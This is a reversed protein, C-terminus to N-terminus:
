RVTGRQMLSRLTHGTKFESNLANQQNKSQQLTNNFFALDKAARDRITLLGGLNNRGEDTIEGNADRPLAAIAADMESIKATSSAAANQQNLLDTAIPANREKFRAETSQLAPMYQASMAMEAPTKGVEAENMAPGLDRGALKALAQKQAFEQQTAVNSANYGTGASLMSSLDTDFLETDATLGPSMRSLQDIDEQTINGTKLRNQLLALKGASLSEADTARKTLAGQLANGQDTLQKNVDQQLTLRQQQAAQAQQEAVNQASGISETLGQSARRSQKLQDSGTQGLLINDLRQQGSNYQKGQGVFRQLLNMQGGASGVQSGLQQAQKANNMLMQTDKLGAPGQYSGERLEKFQGVANDDAKTVDKLTNTASQGLTNIKEKEQGLQQGFAGQAQGLGTKVQDVQKGIGQQISAGLGNNRNAGIVKQLNTFGSGVRNQRQNPDQPNFPM